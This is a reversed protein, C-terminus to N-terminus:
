AFIKTRRDYIKLGKSKAVEIMNITGSGGNFVILCDAYEAMEKNRNMGALVNYEGYQNERVLVNEVNLNKWDAPFERVPIGNQIAWNEGETDAGKAKGCVVESIEEKLSDLFEVDKQSFKYDRGGAIITRM